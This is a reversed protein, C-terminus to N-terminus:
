LALAACLSFAARGPGALDGGRRAWTLRSQRPAIGPGRSCRLSPCISRSGLAQATGTPPLGSDLPWPLPAKLTGTELTRVPTWLPRSTQFNLTCPPARALPSPNPFEPGRSSAQPQRDRATGAQTPRPDQTRDGRAPGQLTSRGWTGGGGAGGQGARLSRGPGPGGCRQGSRSPPRRAAPPPGGPGPVGSGAKRLQSQTESSLSGHAPTGATGALIARRDGGWGRM